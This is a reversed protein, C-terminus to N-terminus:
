HGRVLVVLAGYRRVLCFGPNDKGDLIGAKTSFDFWVDFWTSGRRVLMSVVGLECIFYDNRMIRVTILM